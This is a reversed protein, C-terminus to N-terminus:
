VCWVVRMKIRVAGFGLKEGVGKDGPTRRCFEKCQCKGVKREITGDIM